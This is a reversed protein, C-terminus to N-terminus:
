SESNLGEFVEVWAEPVPITTQEHYNYCVMVSSGSACVAGDKRIVKYSLVFSTRGMSEFRTEVHLEDHLRVPIHYDIENRALILGQARWDWDDGTVLQRFFDMRGQEFYQLYVGNHVHSALDVDAFRVQIPTKIM